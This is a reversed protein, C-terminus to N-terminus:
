DSKKLSALFEGSRDNIGNAEKTFLVSGVLYVEDSCFAKGSAKMDQIRKWVIDQRSYMGFPMPSIQFDILKYELSQAHEMLGVPNSYSSMELFVTKYGCSLIRKSVENGESGGCLYPLTLLKDDDCPIYPPNAILYEAAPIDQTEFFSENHIIYQRQLGNDQILQNAIDIASPNIEYGHVTGWFDSNLIASIVPAGTGSGFEIITTASNCDSLKNFLIQGLSSAYRSSEEPCVFKSRFDEAVISGLSQSSIYKQVASSM